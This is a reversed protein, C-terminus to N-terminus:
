QTTLADYLPAEDIMRREDMFAVRDTAHAALGM